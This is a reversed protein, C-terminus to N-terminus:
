KIIRIDCYERFKKIARNINKRLNNSKCYNNYLEYLENDNLKSRELLENYICNNLLIKLHNLDVANKLINRYRINLLEPNINDINIFHSLDNSKKLNDNSSILQHNIIENSGGLSLPFIHDDHMNKLGTKNYKYNGDPMYIIWRDSISSGYESSCIKCINHLGCEMGLSLRFNNLPKKYNCRSCIKYDIGYKLKYLDYIEEPTKDLKENKENEIRAKRRRQSCIRCFGQLGDGKISINGDLTLYAGRLEFDRISLGNIGEHKIGTKSGRSHGFTCKKTKGIIKEIEDYLLLHDKIINKGLSKNVIRQKKNEINM